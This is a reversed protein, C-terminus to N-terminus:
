LLAVALSRSDCTPCTTLSPRSTTSTACPGASPRTRVRAAAASSTRSSTVPSCTPVRPDSLDALQRPDDAPAPCRVEIRSFYRWVLRTIDNAIQLDSTDNFRNVIRVLARSEWPDGLSSPGLSPASTSSTQASGSGNSVAKALNHELSLATSSDGASSASKRSTSSDHRHRPSMSVPRTAPASGSAARQSGVAAELPSHEAVPSLLNDVSASTGAYSVTTTTSVMVGVGPYPTDDPELPAHGAPPSLEDDVDAVAWPLEEPVLQDLRCAFPLFRDRFHALHPRDEIVNFLDDFAM